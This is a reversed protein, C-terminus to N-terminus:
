KQAGGKEREYKESIALALMASKSVGSSACLELLKAYAADPMTVQIKVTNAM